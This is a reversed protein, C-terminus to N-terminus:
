LEVRQILDGSVFIGHSGGASAARVAERAAALECAGLAM